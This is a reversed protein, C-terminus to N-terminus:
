CVNDGKGLRRYRSRSLRASTVSRYHEAEEFVQTRMCAHGGGDSRKRSGHQEPEQEPFVLESARQDRQPCHPERDVDQRSRVRLAHALVDNVQLIHEALGVRMWDAVEDAFVEDTGAM